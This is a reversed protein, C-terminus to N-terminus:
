TCVIIKKDGNLAQALQGSKSGADSRIITVIGATRQLEFVADQLQGDIVKRDSVVLVSDFIKKHAADHLESLLHATWAISNTKGSGASHQILYKGGAGEVSIADVLKRTAALQHYRPFLYGELKQKSDKKSVLYRGLIDLFS